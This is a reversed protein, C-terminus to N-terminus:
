DDGPEPFELTVQAGGSAANDLRLRAGLLATHGTAIALGLGRGTGRDPAGTRFRRPGDVILEEPLGPGHDRIVVRTGDVTIEVPSRGHRVANDFLIALIRDVRDPDTEVVRGEDVVTVSVTASGDDGDDRSRGTMANRVLPALHLPERRPRETGSDLRSLEELEGVLASLRQAGTRVMEVARPHPLLDSAAVVGTVPTRLEHAIGAALERDTQERRVLAATLGRLSRGLAAAEERGTAGHGPEPARGGIAIDPAAAAELRVRRSLGNALFWGVVALLAAVSVSLPVLARDVATQLPDQEVPAAPISLVKGSIGAAAYLRRTSGGGLYTATRGRRAVDALPGPLSADNWRSGAALAGDHRYSHLASAVRMLQHERVHDTRDRVLTPALHAFLGFVAGASMVMASIALAIRGRVGM